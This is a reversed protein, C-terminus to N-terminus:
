RCVFISHRSVIERWSSLCTLVANLRVSRSAKPYEHILQPLMKTWSPASEGGYVVINKYGAERLLEVWRKNSLFRENGFHKKSMRTRVNPVKFVLCKSVLKQEKFARIIDFDSFHEMVGSHVITDFANQLFSHSMNFIDLKVYNVGGESLRNSKRALDLVEEDIDGATVNYNHDALIQSLYGLGCGAELIKGSHPTEIIIREILLGHTYTQSLLTRRSNKLFESWESM